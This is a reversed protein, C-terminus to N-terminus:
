GVSDIAKKIDLKLLLAPIKSKHLRRACNWMYMYNDHISRSKLFASEARSVISNMFPTSRTTMMKAVIKAVVHILSIPRYNTIGEAGVKKLILVINASNYFPAIIKMHDDKMISWCSKFFVCTFRDPRPAKDSPLDKIANHVEKETFDDALSSFTVLPSICLTGILIMHVGKGKKMM